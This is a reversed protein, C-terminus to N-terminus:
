DGEDDNEEESFAWRPLSIMRGQPGPWVNSDACKKYLNLLQRFESRGQELAAPAVEYVCVQHPPSKEVAVFLFSTRKLGLLQGLYLYYAAQVYYRMNAMTRRFEHPLIGPVTKVDVLYKEKPLWDIRGKLLLGTAPDKAFASIEACGEGFIQQCRENAKVNAVMAEIDELDQQRVIELGAGEQRSKWQKGAETAFSMGVPKIAFPVRWSGPELLERHFLTGFKMAPTEEKGFLQYHRAHAPSRYLEKLLSNSVGSEAHYTDAPMGRYLGPKM